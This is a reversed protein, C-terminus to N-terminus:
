KHLSGASSSRRLRGSQKRSRRPPCLARELKPSNQKCNVNAQLEEQGTQVERGVVGFGKRVGLGSTKGGKDGDGNLDSGTEQGTLM